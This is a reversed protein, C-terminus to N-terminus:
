IKCQNRPKMNNTVNKTHRCCLLSPSVHTLSKREVLSSTREVGVLLLKLEESLFFDCLVSVNLSEKTHQETGTTLLSNTLSSTYFTPRSPLEHWALLKSTKTLINREGTKGATHFFYLLHTCYFTSDVTEWALHYKLKAFLNDKKSHIYTHLRKARM